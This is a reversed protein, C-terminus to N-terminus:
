DTPANRLRAQRQLRTARSAFTEDFTAGVLDAGAAALYMADTFDLGNAYLELADRVM